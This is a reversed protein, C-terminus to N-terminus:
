EEGIKRLKANYYKTQLELLEMTKKHQASFMKHQQEAIEKQHQYYAAQAQALASIEGRTDPTM